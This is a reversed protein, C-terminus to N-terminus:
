IYITETAPMNQHSLLNNKKMGKRKGGEYGFNMGAKLWTLVDTLTYALYRERNKNDVLSFRYISVLNGLKPIRILLVKDDKPMKDM